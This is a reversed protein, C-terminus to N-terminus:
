RMLRVDGALAATLREFEGVLAVNSDATLAMKNSSACRRLLDQTPGDTVRFAITFIGIGEAKINNCMRETAANSNTAPEDSGLSDIHPPADLNAEAAAGLKIETTNNGDTMFVMFQRKTPVGVEPVNDFPEGRSLVRQGWMLGTPLYTNDTTWLSRIESKLLDYDDTLPVIEAPCNSNQDRSLGSVERPIRNLLGPIKNSYADDRESYPPTRTGVCGEWRSEIVSNREEYTTTQGTCVDTQYEERIGDRNRTRTERICSGGTHTAQQWTRPTDYEVPMDFWSATRVSDNLRVYRAFPVIGIKTETDTEEIAEVFNIAGDELAQMKGEVSMSDTNDLVLVIEVPEAGALGSEASASLRVTDIGLIGGFFPKYDLGATLVVSKENIVLVPSMREIDYGNAEIVQNAADERTNRDRGTIKDQRSVEVSAAALVGADVQAQLGSRARSMSSYDVAAGVGTLLMLSSIAFMMAVNGDTKSKYSKFNLM